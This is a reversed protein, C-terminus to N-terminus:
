RNESIGIELCQSLFAVKGSRAGLDQPVKRDSDKLGQLCLGMQETGPFFALWTKLSFPLLSILEFKAMFPPLSGIPVSSLIGSSLPSSVAACGPLVSSNAEVWLLGGIVGVVM